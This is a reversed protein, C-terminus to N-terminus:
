HRLAEAAGEFFETGLKGLSVVVWAISGSTLAESLLSFFFYFIFYKKLLQFFGVCFLVFDCVM